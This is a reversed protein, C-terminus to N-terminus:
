KKGKVPYVKECLISLYQNLLGTDITKSRAFLGMVVGNKEFFYFQNYYVNEHQKVYMIKGAIETGNISQRTNKLTKEEFVGDKSKYNEIWIEIFRQMETALTAGKDYVLVHIEPSLDSNLTYVFCNKGKGPYVEMDRHYQFTVRGDRYHQIDNKFLTVKHKKGDKDEFEVQENENLYVLQGDLDIRFNRRNKKREIEITKNISQIMLYPDVKWEGTRLKRLAIPYVMELLKINGIRKRDNVMVDNVTIQSGHIKIIEGPLYWKIPLSQLNKKVQELQAANLKPLQTIVEINETYISHDKVKKLDRELFGEAFLKFVEDATKTPQKQAFASFTSLLVIFAVLFPKKLFVSKM